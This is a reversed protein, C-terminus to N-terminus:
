RAVLDFTQRKWLENSALILVISVIVGITLLLVGGLLTRGTLWYLVWLIIWILLLLVRLTSNIQKPDM